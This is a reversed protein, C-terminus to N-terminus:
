RRSYRFKAKIEPTAAFRKGGYRAGFAGTRMAKGHPYPFALHLRGSGSSLISAASVVESLYQQAKDIDGGLALGARKEHM